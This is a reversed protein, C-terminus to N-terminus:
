AVGPIPVVGEKPIMYWADKGTDLVPATHTHTGNLFIKKTDLDPLRKHVEERVVGLVEGPVFALDCSVMVAADLLRGGERSELALVNATLPTEVTTSIRLHFAGMLAVPGTPTIDASAAGVLLDGARDATLAAASAPAPEGGPSTQGVGGILLGAGGALSVNLFQRRDFGQSM